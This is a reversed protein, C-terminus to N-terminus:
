SMAKLLARRPIMLEECKSILESLVPFWKNKQAWEKCIFKVIDEPYVSLEEVFTMIAIETDIEAEPRKATMSRLRTVIATVNNVPSSSNFFVIARGWEDSLNANMTVDLGILEWDKNVREKLVLRSGLDQQLSRILNRNTQWPSSETKTSNRLMALGHSSHQMGAQLNQPAPPTITESSKSSSQSTSDERQANELINQTLNGIKQYGSTNQNEKQNEM